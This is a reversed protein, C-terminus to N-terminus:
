RAPRIAAARRALWLAGEVPHIIKFSVAVSPWAQRLALFFAQRVLPAHAFVGGTMAVRVTEGKRWLRRIVGEALGALERGATNLIESSRGDGSAHALVLPVLQAFDPRPSGNSLRVLQEISNLKWANLIAKVLAEDGRDHERLAAAVARRGIWHGSGEDSVEFGYGGARAAEGNANRGFAISGTGAIVVIGPLGAFAAEMAIVNDGVVTTEAGTIEAVINRVANAYERVSAGAVGVVAADVSRPTVGAAACAQAVAADLNERAAAEGLRVVNSGGFTATALVRSEDGVACTTKSGGGDIGLYIAM